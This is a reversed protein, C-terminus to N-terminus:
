LTNPKFLGNSSGHGLLFISDHSKLMEILAKKSICDRVITTNPLSNYIPRLFHTSEDHPHIVLNKM